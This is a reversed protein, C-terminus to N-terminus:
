SCAAIVIFVLLFHLLEFVLHAFILFGSLLIQSVPASSHFFVLLSHLFLEPPLLFPCICFKIGLPLLLQLFFHSPLLSLHSPLQLLL